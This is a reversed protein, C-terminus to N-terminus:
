IACRLHVINGVYWLRVTELGGGDGVCVYVCVEVTGWNYMEHQACACVSVDKSKNGHRVADGTDRQGRYTFHSWYQGVLPM